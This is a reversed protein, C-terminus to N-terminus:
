SRGGLERSEVRNEGPAEILYFRALLVGGACFLDKRGSTVSAPPICGPVEQIRWQLRKYTLSQISEATSHRWRTVLTHYGNTVMHYGNTM